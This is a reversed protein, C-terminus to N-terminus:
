LYGIIRYTGASMTGSCNIKIANINTTTNTGSAMNGATTIGGFTARLYTQSALNVGSLVIDIPGIAGSNGALLSIASDSGSHTGSYADGFSAIGWSYGSNIFTSGANVSFTATLNVSSSTTLRDFQIEIRSYSTYSSLNFTISSGSVSGTALIAPSTLSSGNSASTIRGKADVTLTTNTYTGATVGSTALTPNPYTGTLDGGAPGSPNGSFPIGELVQFGGASSALTSDYAGCFMQGIQIDGAAVAVPGGSSPRYLAKAGLGNYNLRDAGVSTFNAKGCLVEGQTYATPYAPNSPTIVYTGGSGTTSLGANIREWFRATAGMNSRATPEVQNPFMGAPWGNPPAANNSNDTTSYSGNSIDDGYALSGAGLCLVAAAILAHGVSRTMAHTRHMGDARLGTRLGMGIKQILTSSTTRNM